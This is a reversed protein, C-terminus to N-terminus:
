GTKPLVFISNIDDCYVKTYGAKQFVDNIAPAHRALTPWINLEHAEIIVMKPEWVSLTFGGLVELEYGEVDISMVDINIPEPLGHSLLDYDLAVMPVEIYEDQDYITDPRGQSVTFTDMSSVAGHLWIFAKTDYLGVAKNVCIVKPNDKYLNACAQYIVPVPEYLIGRWGAQALGWTNSFSYGDYAGVDVFLGDSKQHFWKSYIADLGKIQCSDATPYYM